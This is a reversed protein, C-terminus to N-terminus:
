RQILAEWDVLFAVGVSRTLDADFNTLPVTLAVGLSPIKGTSLAVGVRLDLFSPTQGTVVADLAPDSLTGVRAQLGASFHLRTRYQAGLDVDLLGSAAGAFGRSVGSATPTALARQVYGVRVSFGPLLRRRTVGDDTRRLPNLTYRYGGQVQVNVLTKSDSGDPAPVFDAHAALGGSHQDRALMLEDLRQDFERSRAFSSRVAEVARVPNAIGCTARLEGRLGDLDEAAHLARYCAPKDQSSRLAGGLAHLVEGRSVLFDEFAQMALDPLRSGTILGAIDMRTDVGIRAGSISGQLVTVPVTVSLDWFRSLGSVTRNNGTLAAVIGLPNFSVSLPLELQPDAEDSGTVPTGTGGVGLSFGVLPVPRFSPAGDLEAVSGPSGHVTPFAPQLQEDTLAFPPRSALRDVIAGALIRCLDDESLGQEIVGEPLTDAVMKATEACSENAALSAGPLWALLAAALVLVVRLVGRGYRAPRASAAGAALGHRVLRM